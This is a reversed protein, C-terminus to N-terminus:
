FLFHDHCIRMESGSTPTLLKNLLVMNVDYYIYLWIAHHHQIFIPFTTFTTMTSIRVWTSIINKVWFLGLIEVQLKASTEHSVRYIIVLFTNEMRSYVFNVSNSTRSNDRKIDSEHLIHKLVHTVFINVWSKQKRDYTKNRKNQKM